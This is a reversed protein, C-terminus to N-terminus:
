ASLPARRESLARDLLALFPDIGCPKALFYPTGMRKAIAPLEHNGSVLIIPVNQEGADHLLMKHAMEPGGMVPMDVDLVLADPLNASRLALLGEEGTSATQVVHKEARLVDGFFEVLDNDDDVLLLRSVGGCQPASPFRDIRATRRTPVGAPRPL